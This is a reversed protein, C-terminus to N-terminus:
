GLIEDRRTEVYTELDRETDEAMPPREFGDLLREVREHASQFAAKSGDNEWNDYSDHVYMEPRLFDSKSHDLTHRKNLFHGGPDVERLLDLAFADDDLSYGDEFRRLYRIRECDLVFKEPSATSYSDMIGAGHLVLDIDSLLSVFLQFMAEAGNQDDVTKADTLGGGARCPVGYYRAMQGAFSVFLAGEPSGITFSGFRVDINSSPLGYVVPAGPNELQALTIGALIEANALAMSGALTAPGSAAAMVAPAIVIPQGHRAYELLGGTMRTDWVRPSVSNAVSFLYPQSLNPDDHAIRTLEMCDKARDGGYASGMPPKDTHTFARVLTEIHKVRQDVDNPECVLAAVLEIEDALQALKLFDENDAMESARRGEDYRLVNPPAATTAMARSGGGIHVDADGNRGHLTFSEPAQEACDEVLSAPFRVVETEENVQCGNEALLRRGREHGVQIGIDTLITLSREHIEAVGADSLRELRPSRVQRPTDTM